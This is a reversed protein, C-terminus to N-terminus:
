LEKIVFIEYRDLIKWYIIAQERLKIWYMDTNFGYQKIIESINQEIEAILVLNVKFSIKRNNYNVVVEAHPEINKNILIAGYGITAGTGVQIGDNLCSLPAQDGAFSEINIEDLGCHLYEMIRLGMKAGVISYIGLHSHIESTLAVLKYEVYGYRNIITDLIEKVDKQIFFGEIPIENFVVGADKKNTNLISLILNEYYSNQTPTIKTIQNLILVEKFQLPYLIYLPLLDDWLNFETLDNTNFFNIITTSYKTNLTKCDATFTSSFKLANASVCKLPINYKQIQAFATKNQEYNYGKPLDEYDSYWLIYDIKPIIDKNNEILESINTLPGLAIIITKNRNQSIANYLVTESSEFQQNEINKFFKKWYNLAHNSYKKSANINKGVAIKIGEHKYIKLLEYLYNGGQQPELVGDTTTIANINFDASALFYTIARFDDIGCDSDIVINYKAFKHAFLMPLSILLFFLVLFYKKKM